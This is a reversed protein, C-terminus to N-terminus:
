SVTGGLKRISDELARRTMVRVMQTRYAASARVDSIPKADEAARAGMKDLLAGDVQTIDAGDLMAEAEPSRLIVPAVAGLAIRTQTVRNAADVTVSAAANVLAIDVVTRDIRRYTADIRGAPLPIVIEQLLEGEDLATANVGEFFDELLIGREGAAGVIRAEANVAVFAPSLDAAPSANCLNGGVTAITRSQPTCMLKTVDSLMTLLHHRAAARELTALSTMAGIRISDDDCTIDDLETLRTLDICYDLDIQSRQWLLVLDTGGAWFCARDGHEAKMNAAEIPSSPRLYEFSARM